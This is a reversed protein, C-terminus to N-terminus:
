DNSRLLGAVYKGIIDFELNVISGKHVAKINTHELTYPIIAVKFTERSTEFATLSIGNICISGKEVILKDKSRVYRFQLIISGEERLVDICEATEDVHGQVMHGDLRDGIKLCRELNVADGIVLLGLNTRKLTEDVATVRHRGEKIEVVTLCVGNHAVSQDTKFENSISSGITLDLNGLDTRLEIVKGTTEIIGTFM